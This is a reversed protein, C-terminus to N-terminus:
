INQSNKSSFGTIIPYENWEKLEVGLLDVKELAAKVKENFIIPGMKGWLIDYGKKYIFENPYMEVSLHKNAESITNRIDFWHKKSQVYGKKFAEITKENKTSDTYEVSFSIEEYLLKDYPSFLLHFIYYTRIEQSHLAKVEVEYFRHDPMRFTEIVKKIKPSIVWIRGDIQGRIPPNHLSSGVWEHFDCFSAPNYFSNRVNYKWLIFQIIEPKNWAYMYDIKKEEFLRLREEEEYPMGVCYLEFEKSNTIKYYKM